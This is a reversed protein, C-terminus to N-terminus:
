LTKLLNKYPSSVYISEIGNPQEGGPPTNEECPTAITGRLNRPPSRVDDQGLVRIKKSVNLGVQCDSKENSEFWM